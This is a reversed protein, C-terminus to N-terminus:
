CAASGGGASTGLYAEIVAPDHRIQEPTGEALTRGYDLVHIRHCLGLVLTMDHEIVLLGVDFDAPLTALLAKLEGTEHENLGAAPEDLLLFAPRAALARVIGVRREVGHPLAEGMLQAAHTLHMRDLLEWAFTRAARMRLGGAVAGSLVNELVTLRGFLRVSQFTRGLRHGALRQPSWGTVDREGLLVRGTSPRQFGSLVNVLTTKGAGNPGILGLIEGPQFSISVDTLAKVGVFEVGVGAASLQAAAASM